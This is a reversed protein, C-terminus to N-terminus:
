AADAPAPGPWVIWGTDSHCCTAEEGGGGACMRYLPPDCCLVCYLTCHTMNHQTHPTSTGAPDILPQAPPLLLTIGLRCESLVRVPVLSWHGLQNHAPQPQTSNECTILSNFLPRRRRANGGVRLLLDEIQNWVLGSGSVEGACAASPSTRSHLCGRPSRGRRPRRPCTRTGLPYHATM